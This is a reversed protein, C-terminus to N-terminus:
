SPRSSRTAGRGPGWGHVFTSRDFAHLKTSAATPWTKL